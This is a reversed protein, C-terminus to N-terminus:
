QSGYFRLSRDMGVSAVVQADNTVAVGLVVSGDGENFTAKTTWSKVHLVRTDSSGCVLYTGSHDFRVSHVPAGTELTKVCALKRLDWLRVTGDASGSAMSYGNESFALSTVAGTHGELTKQPSSAATMDWLAIAGSGSGTCLILGDPHYALSTLGGKDAVEASVITSGSTCDHLKWTGDVSSSAVFTGTPHVSIDTVAGSHADFKMKENYKKGNAVWVRVTADESGSFLVNQEPHWAVASVKKSHGSITATTKKQERDFVKINKDIGGTAVVNQQAGHIAVCTIGPKSAQHPTHSSTQQFAAVQEKSALTAPKSRKKRRAKLEDAKVRMAQLAPAPVSKGDAAAAAAGAAPAALTGSAARSQVDQYAAVAQDREKILRAIVRCAADHQYLAQSLEQRLTQVNKKLTFTELMVADWEKQFLSLMGPISTATIDRPAVTRDSKVTILDDVSLEGGTIPCTNSSALHKEILRREFIHGTKSSM